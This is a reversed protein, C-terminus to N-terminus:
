FDGSSWTNLTELTNNEVAEGGGYSPTIVLEERQETFNFVLRVDQDTTEWMESIEMKMADFDLGVDWHLRYRHGTV